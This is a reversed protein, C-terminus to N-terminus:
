VLKLEYLGKMLFDHLDAQDLLAGITINDDSASVDAVARAWDKANAARVLRSTNAMVMMEGAQRASTVEM